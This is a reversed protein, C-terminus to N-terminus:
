NLSKAHSVQQTAEREQNRRCQERSRPEEELGEDEEGYSSLSTGQSLLVWLEM